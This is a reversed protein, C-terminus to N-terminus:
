WYLFLEKKFIKCDVNCTVTNSGLELKPFEGQTKFNTGENDYVIKRECDVYIKNSRQNEIRFEQGNCTITVRQGSTNNLEFLPLCPVVGNNVVEGVSTPLNEVKRLFPRVKFTVSFEIAIGKTHNLSGLEKNVITYYYEENNIFLKDDFDLFVFNLIDKMEIKARKWNKIIFNLTFSLDKYTGTKYTLTGEQRGLVSIEEITEKAVPISYDSLLLIGKDTSKIGNLIIYGM